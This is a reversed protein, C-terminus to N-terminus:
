DRNHEIVKKERNGYEDEKKIVTRSDRPERDKIVARDRDQDHSEGTTVGAGAPGVHVGVEDSFAPTTMAGILAVTLLYNRM